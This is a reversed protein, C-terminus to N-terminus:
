CHNIPSESCRPLDLFVMDVDKNPDVLSSIDDHSCLLNMLISKYSMFGHQAYNLLSNRTLHLQIGDREFHELINCAIYTLSVHTYYACDHESGKKRILTVIDTQWYSPMVGTVLTKNFISILSMGLLPALTNLLQPIYVILVRMNTSWYANSFRLSWHVKLCLVIRICGGPRNLVSHLM